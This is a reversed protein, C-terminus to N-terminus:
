FYLHSKHFKQIKKEFEENIDIESFFNKKFYRSYEKKFCSYYSLLSFGQEDSNRQGEDDDDLLNTILSVRQHVELLSIADLQVLFDLIRAAVRLKKSTTTLDILHFLKEIVARDSVQKPHYLDLFGSYSDHYEIRELMDVLEVTLIGFILYLKILVESDKPNNKCYLCLKNRFKEEGFSSKRVANCFESSIKKSINV